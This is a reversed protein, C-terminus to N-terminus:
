NVNGQVVIGAINIMKGADIEITPNGDGDEPTWM